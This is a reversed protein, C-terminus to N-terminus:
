KKIRCVELNKLTDWTSYLLLLIAVGKVELGDYPLVELFAIVSTLGLVSLLSVGCCVCGTIFTSMIGSLIGLFSSRKKINKKWFHLSKYTIGAVIIPFCLIMIWSFATDIYAYAYSQYNWAVYDVDSYSYWLFGALISTFGWTMLSPRFTLIKKLQHLMIYYIKNSPKSWSKSVVSLQGFWLYLIERLCLFGM